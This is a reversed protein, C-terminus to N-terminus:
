HHNSSSHRRPKRFISGCKCKEHTCRQREDRELYADSDREVGSNGEKMSLWQIFSHSITEGKAYVLRSDWKAGPIM